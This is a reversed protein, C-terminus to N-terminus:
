QLRSLRQYTENIMGLLNSAGAFARQVAIMSVMEEVAEVNSGELFGQRIDATHATELLDLPAHYYGLSDQELRQENEFDVLRLRGIETGDQSVIGQTGIQIPVGTPDIAGHLEEWALPLGDLTKLSGERDVQLAGNRTYIEGRDGEVGLFGRGELAVHLPNGTQLLSGQSFDTALRVTLQEHRGGRRDNELAHVFPTQRKYATTSTNALNHALYDMRKQNAVMSEVGSYLGSTM